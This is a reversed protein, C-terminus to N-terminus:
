KRLSSKFFLRRVEQMLRGPLQGKEIFGDAGCRMCEDKLSRGSMQTLILIRLGPFLKRLQTAAELGSLRPM